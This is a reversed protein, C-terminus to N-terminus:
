MQYGPTNRIRANHQSTLYPYDYKVAARQRNESALDQDVEEVLGSEEGQWQAKAVRLPLILIHFPQREPLYEQNLAWTPHNQPSHRHTDIFFTRPFGAAGGPYINRL